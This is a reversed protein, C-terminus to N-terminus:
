IQSKIAIPRDDSFGLSTLLTRIPYRVISVWFEELDKLHSINEIKSIQNGGIDL